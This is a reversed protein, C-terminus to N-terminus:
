VTDKYQQRLRELEAKLQATVTETGPKGYLNNLENPDRELDFLPEIVAQFRLDEIGGRADLHRLGDDEILNLFNGFQKVLDM